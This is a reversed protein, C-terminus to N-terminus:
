VVQYRRMHVNLVLGTGVFCSIASSGGYSVFPIPIGTIPMIGLTMGVSQFMQFAFLTMVGCSILTGLLDPSKRATRMCRWMVIAFLALVVVSGLFGFEEGIVSFIFDTHQEPVFEGRTQQGQGFGQGSLGGSGIAIQAQTQQYAAETQSSVPDIFSTLRDQQYDQLAGSSWVLAALLVGVVTLIFIHKTQAGAILLMGMTIAIFVLATGVDTELLILGIPMVALLLANGLQRINLRGNFRELYNALMFIYAIKCLESPQLQFSGFEFWAKTGNREVGLPTLVLLLLFMGAWFFAPVWDRIRRYPFYAVVAMVVVGVGLFLLQRNLYSKDYIEPDNGRTASYVMFAGIVSLSITSLVLAIDVHLWPSWPDGTPNLNFNKRTKTFKM